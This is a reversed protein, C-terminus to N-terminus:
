RCRPRTAPTYRWTGDSNQIGESLIWGAPVGGVTLSVPGAHDTTPDTLALNIPEGSTGVPFLTATKTATASNGAVDTATATILNGLGINSSSISWAGGFGFSQDTGLIVSGSSRTVVVEDMGSPGNDTATGSVAGSGFFDTASTIKVTPGVTDITVSLASSTGVNGASDSTTATISHVGDSLASTTISYTGGSVVASGVVTTGDLLTVTTGNVGTGSFTPTNDNTINDTSSVGKDSTAILDPTGPSAPAVTDVTINHTATTTNGAADTAVATLTETGQGFATIASASLNYHWTTSTDAVVANGNLTVTSGAENAGTVTVTAAQEAANIIDDTAVTAITPATPAVTDVSINHTTTTTNGAADTAVATLTEPGQGFGNIVSTSLGYHWTTATDAVVANGNLKVTSGADNTGSVTVTAAQEVANIIDDTAVTAITVTPVVTDVSINHTTTTTNGAADTAVATLTEPGQGFGAIASSSLSYHWTTATDAVVASGDLKVTSGAENTGSVTVTAAQEVANIIDDTAVTAITPATPAVTDVSINHTTTTTNGAADTAVATLTEPGQGFGNIVSTSLSYHWTTATDAVAANGNLTVTSGAENTGTVTVSGTREAANIIDDTAVTAITLTPAVTDVSINHTTTTTNGAADTAVATLTEPGQGFGAIASSSLSYHWTTATDAVVVNGDLKVTSGAENTGSVTVTAAQEVANIIDDTAVTAITPATPAVTDVSINHTTTTTNGAADTAVATLTEPGQGFGNIVSTSLSYHWTTATDAVAANGNLTVTSGAENTGTVTVSGTREAANIVDDTAVTAITLTPAVTDLTITLAGTTSTNGAADTFVATIAKAGDAGLDPATVSLQVFHNSIDTATITHVVPHALSSGGLKLEVTDGAQVTANLAVQFTPATVNTLNDTNSSGSDSTAILDPTGGTPAVTDETVTYNASASSTHGALDAITANFNHGGDALSPTTITVFGNSIDTPSLTVASGLATTGDFLQVHDGALAGTGSITVKVDLTPDNTVGNNAVTVAPPPVNDLVAAITPASPPAVLQTYTQTVDAFQFNEFNSFIDTIGDHTISVTNSATDISIGVVASYAFGLKVTDSDAGGDAVVRHASDRNTLDLTDNGAGGNFTITSPLLSTGTFNGDVVFTDNGATGTVVIEEINVIEASINGAADSVLIIQSNSIGSGAVDTGALEPASNLNYSFGTRADYAAVTELFVAGTAGSIDLHFTDAGGSPQSGGNIFDRSGATIATYIDDNGEQAFVVDNGAGTTIVDNGGARGSEASLQFPHADIYSITDARTWSTYGTVTDTELLAFVAWGSGMQLGIGHSAALADTNLVDGFIIDNGAGGNITDSGAAAVGGASGAMGAVTGAYFNTLGSGNSPLATAVGGSGEVQGLIGLDTSNSNLGFAQITFAQDPGTGDGDTKIASIEDTSANVAQQAPSEARATRVRQARRGLRLRAPQRQRQCAHGPQHAIRGIGSRGHRARRDGFIRCLRDVKRRQFNHNHRQGPFSDLTDTGAQTSNDAYHVTYSYTTTGFLTDNTLEFTASSVPIGNFNGANTYTGGNSFDKFAGFDFRLLEGSNLETDQFFGGEVGYGGNNPNVDVLQSSTTGPATWGSVLAVQTTGHGVIYATDTANSASNADFSSIM